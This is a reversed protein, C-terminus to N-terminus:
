DFVMSLDSHHESHLGMASMMIQHTNIRDGAQAVVGTQTSNAALGAAGVLILAGAIAFLSTKRM